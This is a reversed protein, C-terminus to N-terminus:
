WIYDIWWFVADDIVGQGAVNIDGMGAVNKGGLGAVNIYGLGANMWENMENM